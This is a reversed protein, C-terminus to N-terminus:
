PKIALQAKIKAVDAALGDVTALLHTLADTIGLKQTGDQVKYRAGAPPPLAGLLTDAVANLGTQSLEVQVAWAGLPYNPRIFGAADIVRRTRACVMGGNSQNGADSPSTNGEITEFYQANLVRTVIVIHDPIGDRNWDM